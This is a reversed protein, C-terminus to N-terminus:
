LNEVEAIRLVGLGIGQFHVNGGLADLRLPCHYIERKSM